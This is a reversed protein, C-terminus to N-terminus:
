LFRQSSINSSLAGPTIERIFFFFFMYLKSYKLDDQYPLTLALFVDLHFLESLFIQRGQWLLSLRVPFLKSEM